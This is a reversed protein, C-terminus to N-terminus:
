AAPTRARGLHSLTIITGILTCLMVLKPYDAFLALMWM